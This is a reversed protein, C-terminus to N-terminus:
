KPIRLSGMDGKIVGALDVLPEVVVGDECENVDGLQDVDHNGVASRIDAAATPESAIRLDSEIARPAIGVSTSGM